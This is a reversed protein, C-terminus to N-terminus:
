YSTCIVKKWASKVEGLILLPICSELKLVSFFFIYAASQVHVPFLLQFMFLLCLLITAQMCVDRANKKDKVGWLFYSTAAHLSCFRPTSVIWNNYYCTWDWTEKPSKSSEVDLREICANVELDRHSPYPSNTILVIKVDMHEFALM